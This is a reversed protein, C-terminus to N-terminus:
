QSLPVAYRFDRRAGVEYPASSKLVIILHNSEQQAQQWLDGWAGGDLELM